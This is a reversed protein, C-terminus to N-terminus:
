NYEYIPECLTETTTEIDKFLMIRRKFTLSEEDKSLRLDLNVKADLNNFEVMQIYTAFGEGPLKQYLKMSKIGQFLELNRNVYNLYQEWIKNHRNGREPKVLWTEFLCVSM